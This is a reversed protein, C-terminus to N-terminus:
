MHLHVSFRLLRRRNKSPKTEFSWQHLKLEHEGYIHQRKIQDISKKWMSFAGEADVAISIYGAEEFCANLVHLQEFYPWGNELAKLPVYVVFFRSLVFCDDVVKLVRLHMLTSELRSILKDKCM